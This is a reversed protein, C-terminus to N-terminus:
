ASLARGGHQVRAYTTSPGETFSQRPPRPAHLSGEMGFAIFAAIDKLGTAKGKTLLVFTV